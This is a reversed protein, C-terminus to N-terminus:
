GYNLIKNLKNERLEQKLSPIHNIYKSIIENKLSESSQYLQHGEVFDQYNLRRVNFMKDVCFELYETKISIDTIESGWTMLQENMGSWENMKNM